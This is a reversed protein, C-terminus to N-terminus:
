EEGGEPREHRELRLIERRAAGYERIEFVAADPLIEILHAGGISEGIRLFHGRRSRDELVVLSNGPTGVFVGTLTLDEFRPGAESDIRDDNLPIFPDRLAIDQYRVSEFLIQPSGPATEPVAEEEQAPAVAPVLLMLVWSVRRLFRNGQM